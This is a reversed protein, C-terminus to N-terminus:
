VNTGRRVCFVIIKSSLWMQMSGKYMANVPYSLHVPWTLEQTSAQRCSWMIRM